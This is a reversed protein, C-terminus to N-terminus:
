LEDVFALDHSMVYKGHCEECVWRSDPDHYGFAGAAIHARCLECHVHDWGSSVLRTGLRVPLTQDEAPYHRSQGSGGELPEVKTWVRIERGEVISVQASEYDEAVASTGQFQMREWGWVPDLVMWVHFAQWYPSLYFLTQGLVKPEDREDCTFTAENTEKDLSKLSACTCDAEGILLWFWHPAIKEPDGNFIGDLEFRTYGTDSTEGRRVSTVVFKPFDQLSKPKQLEM